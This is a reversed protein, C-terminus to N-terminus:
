HQDLDRRMDDLDKLFLIAEDADPYSRITAALQEIEPRLPCRNAVLWRLTNGYPEVLDRIDQYHAAPSAPKLGPLRQQLFHRAADCLAADPTLEMEHLSPFGSGDGAQLLAEIKPQRDLFHRIQQLAADRQDEASNLFHWWGEVSGDTALANFRAFLADRHAQWDDLRKQQLAPLAIVQPWPLAALIAIGSWITAAAIRPGIAAHLGPITAWALYLALLPPVAIIIVALWQAEVRQALLLIVNGAAFGSLPVLILAILLSWLPVLGRIGALLCAIGLLSWIGITGIMAYAQAIGNGAADSSTLDFNIAIIFPWLLMAFGICLWIAVIM